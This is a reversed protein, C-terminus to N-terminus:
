MGQTRVYGRGFSKYKRFQYELLEKKIENYHVYFFKLYEKLDFCKDQMEPRDKIFDISEDITAAECTMIYDVPYHELDWTSIMGDVVGKVTYENEM